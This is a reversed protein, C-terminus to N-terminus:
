LAVVFHEFLSHSLRKELVWTGRLSASWFFFWCILAFIVRLLTATSLFLPMAASATLEQISVACLNVHSQCALLVLHMICASSRALRWACCWGAAGKLAESVPSVYFLSCHKVCSWFCYGRKLVGWLFAWTGWFCLRM